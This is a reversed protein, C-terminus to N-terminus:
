SKFSTKAIIVLNSTSFAAQPLEDTYNMQAHEFLPTRTAKVDFDGKCQEQLEM